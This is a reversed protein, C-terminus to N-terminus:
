KIRTVFIKGRVRTTTTTFKWGTIWEVQKITPKVVNARTLDWSHEAGIGMTKLVPMIPEKEEKRDLMKDM